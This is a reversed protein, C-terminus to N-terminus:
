ATRVRHGARTITARVLQDMSDLFPAEDLLDHDVAAVSLETCGLVVVGAGREVLRAAVARLADADAPLGAKVQDYIVANIIAQDGTTGDDDPTLVEVGRAAFADHYVRSAVTGATALLGVATLGPVRALAAEVTVDIISVFPVTIAELVQQTFYHATNCPMVLLEAGFGELRAADRALVPGPDEPSTGLVFATRDPVTAHNLVVLDVHDQDRDAQTSVVVRQLFYATALPGVGGLVGVLPGTM